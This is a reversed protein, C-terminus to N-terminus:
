ALTKQLLVQGFDRSVERYGLKLYFGHARRNSLETDVWSAVCGRALFWQELAGLVLGGRAATSNPVFSRASGLTLVYGISARPILAEWKQRALLHLPMAAVRMALRAFLATRLARRTHAETERYSVSGAAFAGDNPLGQESPHWVVHAAPDSLLAGYLGRLVDIGARSSATDPLCLRHCRALAELGLAVNGVQADPPGGAM